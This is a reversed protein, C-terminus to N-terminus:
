FISVLSQMCDPSHTQYIEADTSLLALDNAAWYYHATNKLGILLSLDYSGLFGNVFSTPAFWALWCWWVSHLITWINRSSNTQHSILLIFFSRCNAQMLAGKCKWYERLAKFCPENASHHQAKLAPQGEKSIPALLEFYLWTQWDHGM